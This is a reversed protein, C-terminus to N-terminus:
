QVLMEKLLVADVQAPEVALNVRATLEEKIRQMGAVGKLDDVSLARLYLQLGDLVRPLLKRVSDANAEGTVELAIRLKLFRMRSSDSQLNVIIDPLDVFGIVMAPDADGHAGDESAFAHGGASPVPAARLWGAFHATAVAGGGLAITTGAALALLSRRGHRPTTATSQIGKDSTVNGAEAALPVWRM